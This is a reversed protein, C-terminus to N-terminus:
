VDPRAQYGVSASRDRPGLRHCRRRARTAPAPRLLADLGDNGNPGPTRVGVGSTVLCAVGSRPMPQSVAPPSYGESYLGVTLPLESSAWTGSIHITGSRARVALGAGSRWPGHHALARGHSFDLAGVGQEFAVIHPRLPPTPRVSAIAAAHPRQRHKAMASPGLRVEHGRHFPHQVEIALGVIRAM